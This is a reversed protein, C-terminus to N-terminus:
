ASHACIIINIGVLVKAKRYVANYVDQGKKALQEMHKTMSPIKMRTGFRKKKKIKSINDRTSIKKNRIRAFPSAPLKQSSKSFPTREIL